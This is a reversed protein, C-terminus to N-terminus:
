LGSILIHAAFALLVTPSSYLGRTHLPCLSSHIRQWLLLRVDAITSNYITSVEYYHLRTVTISFLVHENFSQKFTILRLLLIPSATLRCVMVFLKPPHTQIIDSM